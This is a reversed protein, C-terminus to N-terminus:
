LAIPLITSLLGGRWRKTKSFHGMKQSIRWLKFCNDFNCSPPGRGPICCYCPLKVHMDAIKESSEPLFADRDSFYQLPLNPLSHTMGLFDLPFQAEDMPDRSPALTFDTGSSGRSVASTTTTPWPAKRQTLPMAVISVRTSSTASTNTTATTLLQDQAKVLHPPHTPCLSHTSPSALLPPPAVQPVQSVAPGAM